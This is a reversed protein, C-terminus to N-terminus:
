PNSNVEEELMGAARMAALFEAAKSAVCPQGHEALDELSAACGGKDGLRYRNLAMKLRIEDAFWINPHNTLVLNMWADQCRFFTTPDLRSEGGGTPAGTADCPALVRTLPFPKALGQVTRETEAGALDKAYKAWIVYAAYTSSPFNRLLDAYGKHRQSSGMPDGDFADYAERDIGEPETVEVTVRPSFVSGTWVVFREGKTNGFSDRTEGVVAEITYTGAGPVCVPISVRKEWGAPLPSGSGVVITDDFGVPRCVPLEVGRDDIARAYISFDEYRYGWHPAPLISIPEQTTLKVDVVIEFTAWGEVFGRSDECPGAAGLPITDPASFIFVAFLETGEVTGSMVTLALFVTAVTTRMAVESRADVHGRISGSLALFGAACGTYGALVDGRLLLTLSLTLNLPPPLILPLSLLLSLVLLLPLELPPPCCACCPPYKIPQHAPNIRPPRDPM